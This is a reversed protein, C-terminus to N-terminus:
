GVLLHLADGAKQELYITAGETNKNVFDTSYNKFTIVRYSGEQLATEYNEAKLDAFLDDTKYGKDDVAVRWEYATKSSINAEVLHKGFSSYIVGMDYEKLPQKDKRQIHYLAQDRKIVIIPPLVESEDKTARIITGQQTPEIFSRVELLIGKEQLPRMTKHHIVKAGYFTMENAERYTLQNIKQVDHVYRPDGNFVGLVDKWISMKKANTCYAFIAASYDSGERGLTTTFNEPTAGLFGQTVLIKETQKGVVEQICKETLEWDVIGERYNNNTKICSKVNVWQNDIGQENLYHSVIITSLMEGASVIQDYLFTHSRVPKFSFLDKMEDFVVQVNIKTIITNSLLNELIAFHQKKFVTFLEQLDAERQEIYAEYINELQNTVKGMASIVLILEENKYEQLINGVNKIANIDKVSAGGFKFIQM